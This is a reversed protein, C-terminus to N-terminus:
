KSKALIYSKLDRHSELMNERKNFYWLRNKGDVCVFEIVFFRPYNKEDLANSQKPNIEIVADLNIMRNEKKDGDWLIATREKCKVFNM